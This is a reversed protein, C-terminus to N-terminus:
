KKVSTVLHEFKGRSFVTTPSAATQTELAASSPSTIIHTVEQHGCQFIKVARSSEEALLLDFVRQNILVGFAGTTQCVNENKVSM